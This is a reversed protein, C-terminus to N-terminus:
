AWPDFYEDYFEFSGPRRPPNERGTHRRFQNKWVQTTRAENDKDRGITSLLAAFVGFLAAEVSRVQESKDIMLDPKDTDPVPQWGRQELEYLNQMFPTAAWSKADMAMQYFAETAGEPFDGVHEGYGIYDYFLKVNEANMDCSMVGRGSYFFPRASMGSLRLLEKATTPCTVGRDDRTPTNYDSRNPPNM